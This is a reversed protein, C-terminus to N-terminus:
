IIRRVEFLGFKRDIKLRWGYDKLLRRFYKKITVKGKEKTLIKKTLYQQVVKWRDLVFTDPRGRRNYEKELILAFVSAFGRTSYLDQRWEKVKPTGQKVMKTIEQQRIEEKRKLYIYEQYEVESIEPM